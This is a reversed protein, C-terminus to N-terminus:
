GNKRRRLFMGVGGFALLTASSPEPVAVFSVRITAIREGNFATDNLTTGAPTSAGNYTDLDAQTALQITGGEVVGDTGTAGAIFAAGGLASADNVETGADYLSTEYVGIEFVGSADNIAGASNFVQYALADDNGIFLDNTGILMSAFNFYQYNAANNPTVFGTATANPGIVPPSGPAFGPGTAVGQINGPTGSAAIFESNFTGVSGLEAIEELGTSATGGANFTDFTTGNHFGFWVPTLFFDSNGENVVEVRIDGAAQASVTAPSVISLTLAAVIVQSFLFFRRLM